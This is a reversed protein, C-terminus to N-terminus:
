PCKHSSTVHSKPWQCPGYFRVKILLGFRFLDYFTLALLCAYVMPLLCLALVSVFLLQFTQL